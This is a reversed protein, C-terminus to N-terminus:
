RLLALNPEWSLRLLLSVEQPTRLHHTVCSHLRIFGVEALDVSDAIGDSTSRETVMRAQLSLHLALTAM